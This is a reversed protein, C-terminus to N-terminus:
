EGQLNVEVLFTYNSGVQFIGKLQIRGSRLVSLVHNAATFTINNTGMARPVFIVKLM